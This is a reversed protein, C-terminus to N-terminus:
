IPALWTGLGMAVAMWMSSIVPRVVAISSLNPHWIRVLGSRGAGPARARTMPTLMTSMAILAAAVPADADAGGAGGEPGATTQDDTGTCAGGPPILAAFDNDRPLTV